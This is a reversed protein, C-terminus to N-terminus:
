FSYGHEAEQKVPTRRIILHLGANIMPGTFHMEGSRLQRIEDETLDEICTIPGVRRKAVVESKGQYGFAKAQMMAMTLADVYDNEENNIGRFRLMQSELKTPKLSAVCRLKGIELAPQLLTRARDAKNSSWHTYWEVYFPDVGLEACVEAYVEPATAGVGIAEAGTANIAYKMQLRVLDYVQQRLTSAKDVIEVIYANEEPDVGVVFIPSSDKGRRTACDWGAYYSMAHPALDDPVYMKELWEPKFVAEDKSMPELLYQNWFAAAGMAQLKERCRGPNWEEPFLIHCNDFDDSPKGEDDYCMPWRQSEYLGDLESLIFGHIDDFAFRSGQDIWLGNANLIPNQLKHFEAVKACQDATSSNKLVSLDDNILIDYHGSEVSQNAGFGIVTPEKRPSKRTVTFEKGTWPKGPKLEPYLGTLIPNKSIQQRLENLMRKTQNQFEAGSLAIAVDQNKCIQQIIFALGLSTKFHDRPALYHRRSTGDMTDYRHCLDMHFSYPVEPGGDYLPGSKALAGVMPETGLRTYGCVCASFFFLSKLGLERWHERQAFSASLIDEPSTIGYLAYLNKSNDLSM